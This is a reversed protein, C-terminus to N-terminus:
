KIVWSDIIGKIRGTQYDPGYGNLLGEEICEDLRAGCKEFVIQTFTEKDDESAWEPFVDDLFELITKKYKIETDVIYTELDDEHIRFLEPVIKKMGERVNKLTEELYEIRAETESKGTRAMKYATEYTEDSMYSLDGSGVVSYGILQAFQEQDEQSFGDGTQAKLAIQNLDIGGNDLLYRVIENPVFRYTGHEDTIIPQIPKM